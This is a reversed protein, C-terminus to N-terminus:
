LQRSKLIDHHGVKLVVIIREGDFRWLIRIDMNISSEYREERDGQIKKTRLSRYFPNDRLIWLKRLVSNQDERSLKRIDMEFRDSYVIDYKKEIMKM